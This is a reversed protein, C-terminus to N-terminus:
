LICPQNGTRDDNWFGYGGGGISGAGNAGSNGDYPDDSLSNWRNLDSFLCVVMNYINTVAEAVEKNLTDIRQKMIATTTGLAIIIATIVAGIILKIKWKM